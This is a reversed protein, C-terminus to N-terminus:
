HQWDSGTCSIRLKIPRDYWSDSITIEIFHDYLVIVARTLNKLRRTHHILWPLQSTTFILQNFFTIQVSYLIPVSIWALLDELYESVGKFKLVALAPFIIPTSLPLPRSQQNPRSRPSHFGLTFSELGTMTALCTVMVQPSIYGCDPINWLHLLVLHNASLLLKPLGPFPILDLWLTQLRPSSGGLFSDPVVQTTSEGNSWLM